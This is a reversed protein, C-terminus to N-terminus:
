LISVPNIGWVGNAGPTYSALECIIMAEKEEPRGDVYLLMKIKLAATGSEATAKLEYRTLHRSEFLKKVDNDSHSDKWTIQSYKYMNFYDGQMWAKLFKQTIQLAKEKNM